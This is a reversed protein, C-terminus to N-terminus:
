LGTFEVLCSFFFFKVLSGLSFRLLFTVTLVWVVVSTELNGLGDELSLPTLDKIITGCTGSARNKRAM